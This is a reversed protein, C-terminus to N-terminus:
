GLDALFVWLSSLQGDARAPDAVQASMRVGKVEVDDQAWLIVGM